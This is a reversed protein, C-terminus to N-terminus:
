PPSRDASAPAAACAAPWPTACRTRPRTPSPTSCRRRACSWPPRATAASSPARRWSPRQVPAARRPTGCARWPRCAAATPACRWPSAPSSPGATSSCRAPGASAPRAATSRGTLGERRLLELLTTRAEAEARLPRGNVTMELRGSTFYPLSSSGRPTPAPERGRASAGSAHSRPGPAPGQAARAADARALDRRYTPPRTRRRRPVPGPPGGAGGRAGPRGRRGVDARGPAEAELVRAPAGAPGHRRHARALVERGLLVGDGGGGRSRPPPCCPARELAAGDPAGPILISQM